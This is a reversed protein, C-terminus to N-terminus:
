QETAKGPWGCPLNPDDGPKRPVLHGNERLLERYRDRQTGPPADMSAVWCEYVTM